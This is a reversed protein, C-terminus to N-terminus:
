IWIGAKSVLEEACWWCSGWAKHRNVPLMPESFFWNGSTWPPPLRMRAQCILALFTSTTPPPSTRSGGGVGLNQRTVVGLGGFAGSEDDEKERKLDCGSADEVAEVGVGGYCDYARRVAEVGFNGM